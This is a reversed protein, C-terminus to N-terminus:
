KRIAKTKLDGWWVVNPGKIRRTGFLVPVEVGEDATPVDIDKSPDQNYNKPDKSMLASIGYSLAAMIAINIIIWIM